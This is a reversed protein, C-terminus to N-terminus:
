NSIIAFVNTEERKSVQVFDATANRQRPTLDLARVIRVVAPVQLLIRALVAERASTLVLHVNLGLAGSLSAVM